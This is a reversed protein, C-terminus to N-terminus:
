SVVMFNTVAMMLGNLSSSTRSAKDPKPTEPVSTPIVVAPPTVVAVPPAVVVAPPTVVPPAVVVAPTTAITVPQERVAPAPKAVVSNPPMPKVSTPASTKLENLLDAAATSGQAGAMGALAVVTLVSLLGKSWMM